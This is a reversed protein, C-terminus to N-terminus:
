RDIVGQRAKQPIGLFRGCGSGFCRRHNASINDYGDFTDEKRGLRTYSTFETAWSKGAVQVVAYEERYESDRARAACHFHM